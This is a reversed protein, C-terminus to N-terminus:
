VWPILSVLRLFFILIKISHIPKVKISNITQLMFIINQHISQLFASCSCWPHDRAKPGPRSFQEIRHYWVFHENFNKEAVICTNISNLVTLVNDSKPLLPSVM